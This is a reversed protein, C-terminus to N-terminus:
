SVLQLATHVDELCPQMVRPAERPHSLKGSVRAIVFSNQTLFGLVDIHIRYASLILAASRTSVTWPLGEIQELMALDEPALGLANAVDDPRIALGTRFRRLFSALTTVEVSKTIPRNRLFSVLDHPTDFVLNPRKPLSDEKEQDRRIQEVLNRLQDNYNM